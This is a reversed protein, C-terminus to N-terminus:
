ILRLRLYNRPISAFIHQIVCSIQMISFSSSSPSNILICTSFPVFYLTSSIDAPRVYHSLWVHVKWFLIDKSKALCYKSFFPLPQGSSGTEPHIQFIALTLPYGVYISIIRMHYSEKYFVNQKEKLMASHEKNSAWLCSCDCRTACVCLYYLM